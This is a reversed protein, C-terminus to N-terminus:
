KGRLLWVYGTREETLFADREKELAQYGEQWKKQGAESDGPPQQFFAMQKKQWAAHKTRADDAGVGPKPTRVTVCDGVLLDLKGDGDVDAVWVRTDSGPATIGDEGLAIPKPESAQPGALIERPPATLLTRAAGFKPAKRDGENAFWTVGGDSSGSVLDLDQDGDLDVLLPDGHHAVTMPAGGAQLWTPQPDFGDKGGRFWAFTGRFNGVVLDRHGDADLDCAFPRTCIRDIIDNDSKGMPLILPEGDTGKVPEAKGFTGDKRGPLVYLLGAMGKGSRSYTGSLIDAIGDGTFEV